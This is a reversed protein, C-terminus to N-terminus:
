TLSYSENAARIQNPHTCWTGDFGLARARQAAATYGDQSADLTGVDIAQLEATRAAVLVRMRVAHLPDGPSYAGPNSRLAAAMGGAHFILAELRDSAIAIDDVLTLGQAGDIQAEIGIRHALDIRQEIMRLLHDVFEIDGPVQVGPIVICDVFEGVREVLDVVDRYAWMSDIPNIRVSVIQEGFAHSELANIVTARATDKQSREVSDALDMILEDTPFRAAGKLQTESHGPVVLCSRRLRQLPQEDDM